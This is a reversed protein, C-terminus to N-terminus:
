RARIPAVRFGFQSLLRDPPAKTDYGITSIKGGSFDIATLSKLVDNMEAASFSFTLTQNGSIKGAHEFYGVGHKYLV